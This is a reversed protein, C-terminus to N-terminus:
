PHKENKPARIGAALADSECMYAGSKTHGYNHTGAFHYIKSATNAWVVTAGPCRASAQTDTQFQNAATPATPAPTGPAPARTQTPPPAAPPPAPAPTPAATQSGGPITAAGTRCQRIFDAKRTKAAQIAAKNAAYEADCEKATKTQGTPAPVPAAPATTATGPAATTGARCQQIFDAKRIKQQRLAEKQTAYEANCEKVTKAASPMTLLTCGIAASAVLKIWHRM